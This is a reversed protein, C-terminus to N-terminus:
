ETLKELVRGTAQVAAVYRTCALMVQIDPGNCDITGTTAIRAIHPQLKRLAESINTTAENMRVLPPKPKESEM